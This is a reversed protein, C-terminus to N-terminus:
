LLEGILCDGVVHVGDNGDGCAGRLDCGEGGLVALGGHDVGGDRIGCRCVQGADVIHGARAIRQIGLEDHVHHEGLIRVNGLDAEEVGEGLRVGGLGDGVGLGIEIGLADRVNLLGGVRVVLDNGGSGRQDGVAHVGDKGRGVIDDHGSLQGDGLVKGFIANGM